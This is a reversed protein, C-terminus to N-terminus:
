TLTAERPSWGEPLLPVPPVSSSVAIMQGSAISEEMAVMADLIHYGLAGSAIPSGGNRICRALDLAGAGRGFTAEPVSLSVWEPEDQLNAMTVPRTLRVEGGFYNPDPILLTGETGTIEVIGMRALPSDFSLLSQSVGGGAFGAIVSVHSPSVVPFEVGAREGVQISRTARGRTGVGAVTAFPGFVHVLATFYYPGVDFLPGAGAAFLFEPNPHFLDPGPYQFTTQASLPTGIDGREIAKRATQLGPGLVTDPATGVLLGADAAADLLRRGSERDVSIPKESWVHKGAAVAASSVQAHVAPITLNIVLEVDEHALVDDATGARPVGHKDAQARARATDLDGVVVVKVDPFSTLNELYTDSIMGAGILGVGVPGTRGATAPLTSM